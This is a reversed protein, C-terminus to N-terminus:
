QPRRSRQLVRRIQEVIREAEREEPLWASSFLVEPPGLGNVSLYVPTDGCRLRWMIEGELASGGPEGWLSRAGNAVSAPDLNLPIGCWFDAPNQTLDNAIEAPTAPRFSHTPM